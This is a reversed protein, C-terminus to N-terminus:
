HEVSVSMLRVLLLQIVYFLTVERFAESYSRVNSLGASSLLLDLFLLKAKQWFFVEDIFCVFMLSMNLFAESYRYMLQQQIEQHRTELQM